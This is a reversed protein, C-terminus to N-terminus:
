FGNSAVGRESLDAVLDRVSADVERIASSVALAALFSFAQRHQSWDLSRAAFIKLSDVKLRYTTRM